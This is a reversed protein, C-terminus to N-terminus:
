PHGRHRRLGPVGALDEVGAFPEDGVPGLDLQQGDPAPEVAVLVSRHTSVAPPGPPNVRATTPAEACAHRTTDFRQDVPPPSSIVSGARTRRCASRMRSSTADTTRVWILSGRRPIIVIVSARM